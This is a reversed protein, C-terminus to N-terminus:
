QLGGHQLFQGNGRRAQAKSILDGILRSALEKSAYEVSVGHESKVWSKFSPWEAGLEGVLERLKDLQARSVRGQRESQQAGFIPTSPGPSSRQTAEDEDGYLALGVGWLRACRKLCDSSASKFADGLSMVKGDQHRRLEAGGIGSKIVRGAVLRGEVLVHDEFQERSTLEFSWGDGFVENLRKIYASVAVYSLQKGGPGRRTKVQNADFPRELKQRLETNM